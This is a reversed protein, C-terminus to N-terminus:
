YEAIQRKKLEAKIETLDKAMRKTNTTHRGEQRLTSQIIYQYEHARAQLINTPTTSLPDM